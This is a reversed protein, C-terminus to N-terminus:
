GPILTGTDILHQYHRTLDPLDISSKVDRNQYRMEFHWTNNDSHQLFSHTYNDDLRYLVKHNSCIWAPIALPSAESTTTPIISPMEPTTITLINNDSLQIMYFQTADSDPLGQDFPLVPTSIITRHISNIIVSTGEPYPKLGHVAPSHDYLGFFLGGNYKMNFAAPTSRAEDLIFDASATITKTHPCYFEM